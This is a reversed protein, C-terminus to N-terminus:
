IASATTAGQGVFNIGVPITAAETDSVHDPVPLSLAGKLLAYEGFAGSTPDNTKIGYCLGVVRDGPEYKQDVQEDCAVVRGAVDCGVTCAVEEKFGAIRKWDAPNLAVSLVKILLYGPRVTPVPARSDIFLDNPGRVKLAHMTEPVPM